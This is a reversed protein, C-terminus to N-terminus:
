TWCPMACHLQAVLPFQVTLFPSKRRPSGSLPFSLICEGRLHGPEAGKQIEGRRRSEATIEMGGHRQTLGSQEPQGFLAVPFCSSPRVFGGPNWRLEGSHVSRVSFEWDKGDSSARYEHPRWLHM